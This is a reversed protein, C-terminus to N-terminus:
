LYKDFTTTLPLPAVSTISPRVERCLEINRSIPILTGLNRETFGLEDARNHANAYSNTSLRAPIYM